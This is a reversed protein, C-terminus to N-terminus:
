SSFHSRPPCDIRNDIDKPYLYTWPLCLFFAGLYFINTDESVYLMHYCGPHQLQSLNTTISTYRPYEFDSFISQLLM